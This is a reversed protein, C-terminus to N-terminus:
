TSCMAEYSPLFRFRFTFSAHPPDFGNMWDWRGVYIEDPQARCAQRVPCATLRAHVPDVDVCDRQSVLKFDDGPHIAILNISNNRVLGGGDNLRMTRTVGNSGVLIATRRATGPRQPDDVSRVTLTAGTRGLLATATETRSQALCAGGVFLAGTTSIAIFLARRNM